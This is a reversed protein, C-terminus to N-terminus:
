QCPVWNTDTFSQLDSRTAVMFMDVRNRDLLYRTGYEVVDYVRVLTYFEHSTDRLCQVRVKDGFTKLIKDGSDGCLIGNVDTFDFSERNCDYSITVVLGNRVSPRLRLAKSEWIESNEPKAGADGLTERRDFAGHRFVVDSFREGISIDKLSNVLQPRQEWEHYAWLGVGTLAGIAVLVGLSVFLRRAGKRWNWRESTKVYLFVTGLFVAGLFIGLGISM